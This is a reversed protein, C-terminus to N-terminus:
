CIQIGGVVLLHSPRTMTPRHPGCFWGGSAREAEPLLGSVPHSLEARHLRGWSWSNWDPGLLSKTDRVASALSELLAEKRSTESQSPDELRSLWVEASSGEFVDYLLSEDLVEELIADDKIWRAMVARSLHRYAWVEFLAAPASDARVSGDWAGLLGLARTVDPDDSRLGDLRALVRRAPVSRTDSQLKLMDAFVLIEVESSLGDVAYVTTPLSSDTASDTASAASSLSLLCCIALPLLLGKGRM